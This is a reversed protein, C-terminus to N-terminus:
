KKMPNINSIIEKFDKWHILGSTLGSIGFVMLSYLFWWKLGVELENFKYVCLIFAISILIIAQEGFFRRGFIRKKNEM